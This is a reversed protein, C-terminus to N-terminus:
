LASYLIACRNCASCQAACDAPLVKFINCQCDSHFSEDHEKGRRNRWWKETDRGGKGRREGERRLEEEVSARGRESRKWGETKAM